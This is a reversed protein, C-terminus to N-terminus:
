QRYHAWVISVAVFIASLVTFLLALWESTTVALRARINAVDGYSTSQVAERTRRRFSIYMLTAAVLSFGVAALRLVESISM